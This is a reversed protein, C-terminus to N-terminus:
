KAVENSMNLYIIVRRFGSKIQKVRHPLNEPIYNPRLVEKNEFIASETTFDQFMNEM